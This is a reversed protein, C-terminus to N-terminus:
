DKRTFGFFVLAASLYAFGVILPRVQTAFDCLLTWKFAMPKGMLMFTKDAPCTGDQPGFGQEKNLTLPVTNKTLPKSDVTGLELKECALIDPYLDCLGLQDEPKPKDTDPDKDPNQQSDPIPDPGAQERDTPQIDVRWPNGVDPRPTVTTGPQKWPQNGPGAPAQPNYQPNPMPDGTPIFLPRGFPDIGPSPNIAPLEVPLPTGPPLENPVNPWEPQLEPVVVADEFEEPTRLPRTAGGSRCKTGEVITGPPCPLTTFSVSANTDEYNGSASAVNFKCKNDYGAPGIYTYTSTGATYHAGYARCAADFSPYSNRSLAAPSDLTWAKPPDTLQDINKYWQKNIEDYAVSSTQLITSLAIGARIYPNNFLVGLAVKGATPGLKMSVNVAIQKGGANLMASSKAANAIWQNATVSAFQGGPGTVIAAGGASWGPPPTLTAYAANVTCSATLSAIVLFHRYDM